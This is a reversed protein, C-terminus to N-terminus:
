DRPDGEFMMTPEEVDDEWCTLLRWSDRGGDDNLIMKNADSLNYICFSADMEPHMEGETKTGEVGVVQFGIVKASPKLTTTILVSTSECDKCHCDGDEMPCEDNTATMTNADTWTKFQVNDSNCDPCVWVTKKEEPTINPIQCFRVERVIKGNTLKIGEIVDIYMSYLDEVDGQDDCAELVALDSNDLDKMLERVEGITTVKRGIEPSVLNSCVLCIGNLIPRGTNCAICQKYTVTEYMPNNAEQQKVVHMHVALVGYKNFIHTCEDYVKQLEEKLKGM